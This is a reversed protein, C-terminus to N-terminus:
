FNFWREGTPSQNSIDCVCYAEALAFFASSDSIEWFNEQTYTRLLADFNNQGMQQALEDLVLPGLGYVIAAYERSSYAETALDISKQANRGTNWREQLSRRFDEAGVEGYTDLYYLLTIYQTLSEDLWPESVQNNGVAGYFWQHGVEHVITSELLEQLDYGYLRPSNDFFRTSMGIISPYEIGLAATAIASIDLETYPYPQLRKSFVELSKATQELMQDVRSRTISGASRPYYLKLRTQGSQREAVAYDRSATLYFDRVPGAAVTFRQKSVPTTRSTLSPFVTGTTAVNAAQPATVEVLYFATDAHVVDGHSPPTELAWGQENFVALQPYGHGLSLISEDIGFLGYNRQSKQPVQVSYELYVTIAEGQALPTALNINLLRNNRELGVPVAQGAVELRNIRISGDAGGLLNPYLHFYLNNLSVAESNRVLVEQKAEVQRLDDAIDLQIHYISSSVVREVSSWASPVLNVKYVEQDTWAIDFLRPKTLAVDTTAQGQSNKQPSNQQPSNQQAPAVQPALQSNNPNVEPSQQPVVTPSAQEIPRSEIPRSEIPQPAVEVPLANNSEPFPLINKPEVEQELIIIRSSLTNAVPQESQSQAQEVQTQGIMPQVAIGQGVNSTGADSNNSDVPRLITVSGGTGENENVTTDIQSNGVQSLENVVGSSSLDNLLQNIMPDSDLNQLASDTNDQAFVLTFLLLALIWLSTKRM